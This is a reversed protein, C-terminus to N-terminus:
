GHGHMALARAEDDARVAVDHGIRVHDISGIFDQDSEGVLAFELGLEDAGILAGVHRQHLDSGLLRQGGHM